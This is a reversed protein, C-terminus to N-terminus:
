KVESAAVPATSDGDVAVHPCRATVAAPSLAPRAATDRGEAIQDSDVQM